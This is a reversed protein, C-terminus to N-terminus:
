DPLAAEIARTLTSATPRTTSAFWDVAHGDPDILYKYFNWRPATLGGLQDRMWVFVPHANPGSVHEKATMPFSVGYNIQCFSEIEGESGPEQGGFDNSPVGLVTFGREKYTEHIQQLGDLQGTFGCKSATNVILVTKGAFDSLPLSAGRISTFSFDHASGSQKEPPTRGTLGVLETAFTLAKFPLDLM